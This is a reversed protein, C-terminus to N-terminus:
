PSEGDVVIRRWLEFTILMWLRLGYRGPGEVTNYDLLQQVREPNFIGSQKLSRPSLIDQAVDRLEDMFWWHVPVRMGSKPRAIVDAPLDAEYARKLIVKEVGGALKLHGPLTYSFRLMREDFLPAAACLGWAGLMRDVKPLILHAGKLQINISMLKDLFRVPREAEFFPTLVAELDRQRDIHERWEPTLLRELEDYARRYSALYWRERFGPERSAGGYWHHLLMSVNKPGGFCPDGGEGNFVHSVESAAMGALEFNPVAIPDGIPDDLHWAIKRLRPVFDGPRLELERHITGLRKAVSRAFEIENPYDDGFHVTYSHIPRQAHRVLEAAVVSSDIGGSLFVGVPGDGQPLRETVAQSMADRFRQCWQEDDATEDAPQDYALWRHEVPAQGPSWELRHAPRLEHLGSLMTEHGPIFSFTLYQAVAGPRIQRPMSRDSLISKPEIGFRLRANHEAWYLTRVGAADRVLHWTDGDRVVLIFAGRLDEIASVGERRWRSALAELDPAHVPAGNNTLQGIVALSLQGDRFIRREVDRRHRLGISGQPAIDRLQESGRHALVAGMRDLLAPDPPGSFGFLADM